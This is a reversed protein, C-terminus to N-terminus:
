QNQDPIKRCVYQYTFTTAERSSKEQEQKHLESYDFPQMLDSTELSHQSWNATEPLKYITQQPQECYKEQYRRM